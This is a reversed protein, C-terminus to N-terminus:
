VQKDLRALHTRYLDIKSQYLERQITHVQIQQQLVAIIDDLESIAQKIQDIENRLAVQQAQSSLHEPTHEPTHAPEPPVTLSDAESSDCIKKSIAHTSALTSVGMTLAAAPLVMPLTAAGLAGVATSAGFIAAAGTTVSLLQSLKYKKSNKLFDQLDKEQIRHGQKNSQFTSKLKGDRIWRRVTEVNTFLITAIQEVTYEM